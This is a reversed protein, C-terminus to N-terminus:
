STFVDLKPIDLIAYAKEKHVALKAYIDELSYLERRPSVFSCCDDLQIAHLIDLVPKLKLTTLVANTM